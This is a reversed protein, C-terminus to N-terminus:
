RFASWIQGYAEGSVNPDDHCNPDGFAYHFVMLRDIILTLRAVFLM